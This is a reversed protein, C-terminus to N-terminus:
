RAHADLWAVPDDPALDSLVPQSPKPNKLYRLNVDILSFGFICWTLALLLQDPPPDATSRSHKGRASVPRAAM